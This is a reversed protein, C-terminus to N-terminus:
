AYEGQTCALEIHASGRTRCRWVIEVTPLRHSDFTAKVSEPPHLEPFRRQSVMEDDALKCACRSSAIDRWLGCGPCGRGAHYLFTEALCFFDQKRSLHKHHSCMWQCGSEECSYEVSKDESAGALCDDLDDEEDEVNDDESNLARETFSTAQWDSRLEEVAHNEPEQYDPVVVTSSPYTQPITDADVRIELESQATDAPSSM